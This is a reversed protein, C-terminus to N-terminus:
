NRNENQSRLGTALLGTGAAFILFGFYAPGLHTFDLYGIALHVGVAAGFGSLGMLAVLQVLSRTIPVHWMMMSLLCGISFLGGGFGARDHAILPVLAPSIGRLKEPAVGIFAIDQPVFVFTMGVCLITAGAALLGLACLLLMKRGVAAARSDKRSQSRWMSSFHLPEPLLRRARWMGALYVPLLALTAAGHWTDLYGYGLYSLFSLFGCVGSVALTWWAWAAGERLPFETLWWYSLGIAILAGGFAVRDHFMFGVLHPNVMRALSEADVGLAHVDHPLFHGTISQFIAFAGSALLAMGTLSLLFRGDGLIAELLGRDDTPALAPNQM